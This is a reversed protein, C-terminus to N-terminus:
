ILKFWRHVICVADAVILANQINRTYYSKLTRFWNFSETILIADSVILADDINWTYYSNMSFQVLTVQLPRGSMKLTQYDTAKLRQFNM